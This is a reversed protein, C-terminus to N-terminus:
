DVFRREIFRLSIANVGRVLVLPLLSFVSGSRRADSRLAAEQEGDDADYEQYARDHPCSSQSCDLKMTANRMVDITASTAPTTQSNVRLSGTTSKVSSLSRFKASDLM